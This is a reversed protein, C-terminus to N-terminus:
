EPPAANHADEVEGGRPEEFGLVRKQFSCLIFVDCSAIQVTAIPISNLVERAVFAVMAL